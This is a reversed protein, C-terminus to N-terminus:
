FAEGGARGGKGFGEVDSAALRGPQNARTRDAVLGEAVPERVYGAPVLPTVCESSERKPKKPPKITQVVATAKRRKAEAVPIIRGTKADRGIKRTRTQNSM